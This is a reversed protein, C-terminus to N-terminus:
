CCFHWALLRLIYASFGQRDQSQRKLRQVDIHARGIQSHAVNEWQSEDERVGVIGGWGHEEPEKRKTNCLLNIKGTCVYNRM